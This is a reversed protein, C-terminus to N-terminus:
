DEGHHPPDIGHVAEGLPTTGYGTQGRELALYQEVAAVGHQKEITDPLWADHQEEVLDLFIHLYNITDLLSDMLRENTVGEGRKYINALRLLKLGAFWLAVDPACTPDIRLLSGLIAVDHFNRLSDEPDAWQGAREEVLALAENTREAMRELREGIPKRPRQM